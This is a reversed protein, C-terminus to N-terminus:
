LIIWKLAYYITKWFCCVSFDQCYPKLWNLNPKLRNNKIFCVHKLDIKPVDILANSIYM